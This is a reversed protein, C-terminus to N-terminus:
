ASKLQAALWDCILTPVDIQQSMSHGAGEIREYDVPKGLETLRANFTDSSGIDVNTDNTGHLLLIPARVRDVHTIPSAQILRRLDEPDNVDGIWDVARRRWSPQMARIEEVQDSVGCESVGARWYEPLMTLCCLAAFGGYSAGFVALRDPDAWPQARLFEAAARLDAIDGGGWDRYILRQYRLGYGSSGRINPVLVAIGRALLKDHLPDPTPMAQIEPGGHIDVVVPLPGPEDPRYLLASVMTGDASLFRVIEPGRKENEPGFRTAEDKDLDVTWIADGRGDLALLTHADTGFQLVHGYFGSQFAYADPPLSTVHEIARPEGDRVACHRITTYGDENVAWALRSGDASLVAFEIDHEPTDIWRTTGSDDLLGLGTFNGDRTACLYTGEPRAAVAFHKAPGDRPTLLSAQGSAIDIAYIEQETQQHLRTVLLQRSDWSFMEPFYRDEPVQDGAQLVTREQGTTLDRLVIDFCHRDRRNSAYALYRGDPSYPRSRTSSPWGIDNRTGPQTAIPTAEGGVPDVDILQYDDRGDPDVKVVFRSGDPRWACRLVIGNMEILTADAGDLPVLWPQRRGSGDAVVLLQRGDPSLDFMAIRGPLKM